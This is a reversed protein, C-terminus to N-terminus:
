ADVKMEGFRDEITKDKSSSGNVGSSSSVIPKGDDIEVEMKYDADETTANAGQEKPTEQAAAKKTTQESDSEEDSETSSTDSGSDQIEPWMERPAAWGCEECLKTVTPDHPQKPCNKIQNLYRLPLDYDLDKRRLVVHAGNRLKAPDSTVSRALITSDM